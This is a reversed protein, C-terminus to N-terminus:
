PPITISVSQFPTVLGNEHLLRLFATTKGATPPDYNALGIPYNQAFIRFADHITANRGTSLPKTMYVEVWYDDWDSFEPTDWAFVIDYIPRTLTIGTLTHAITYDPPYDEPGAEILYRRVWIRIWWNYGTLRKDQGTWMPERKTAAWANWIDRKAQTLLRWEDTGEAAIALLNLMKQSPEAKPGSRTKVTRIGRWTNYTLGGVSGRAEASGLPQTVKAM